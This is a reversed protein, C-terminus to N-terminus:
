YNINKVLDFRYGLEHMKDVFDGIAEYNGKNKPHLLYIAGNHYRKLLLELAEEKSKDENFDLYDASWFFSKYGMDKVIELGRFSWEGKPDRYVKDMTKGTIEFYAKEMSLIENKFEMFGSANAYKPMQRHHYTHNGISHGQEVWKKVQEQNKVMYNGCLFFTAKVGKSALVDAILDLYTDGGGEDFTLYIVKEDSGMFYASYKALEMFNWGGSPRNHDFKNGSWWSHLTSDIDDYRVQYSFDKPIVKVVRKKKTCNENKDCVSYTLTYEGTQHINVDGEVLVKTSLDGDQEDSASYGEEKYNTDVILTYPNSGKLILKPAITDNNILTRKVTKKIGLFNRASYVIKNKEQKIKVNLNFGLFKAKAGQEVYPNEGTLYVVNEGNMKIEVLFYSCVWLVWLILGICIIKKKMM